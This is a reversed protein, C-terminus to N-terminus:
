IHITMRVSEGVYTVRCATRSHAAVLPAALRIRFAHPRTETRGETVGAAGDPMRSAPKERSEHKARLTAIRLYRMCTSVSLSAM